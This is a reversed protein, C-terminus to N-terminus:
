GLVSSRFYRCNYSKVCLACESERCYDRKSCLQLTFGFVSCIIALYLMYTWEIGTAPLAPTEFIFAAILSLIGMTGVQYIGVRIPDAKDAVKSTLIITGAYTLATMMGLLDGFNFEFGEPKFNLLVIGIGCMFFM